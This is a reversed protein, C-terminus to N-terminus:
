PQPAFEQSSRPTHGPWEVRLLGMMVEDQLDGDVWIHRRRRVEERFGCARYSRIARENSALVGLWIRHLNLHRFGYDVLTSVADRGYGRGWFAREGIAIGLTCTRATQDFDMLDCVGIVKSDTEIAFWYHPETEELSKDFRAKTAAMSIPAPQGWLLAIGLDNDYTWLIAQDEGEMARLTVKEGHLM